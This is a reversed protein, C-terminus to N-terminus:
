SENGSTMKAKIGNIIEVAAKQINRRRARIDDGKAKWLALYNSTDKTEFGFHKLVIYASTEADIEKQQSSAYKGEPDKWHLLEHAVEHVYTSFMNIGKFKDNIAIKGGQSYGGRETGMEEYNVSINNEKAFEDLASILEQLESIDENSDLSWDKRSIPEFTKPHGAIAETASVDYVPRPLFFMRERTEVEGTEKNEIDKKSTAPALIIIKKSWDSVKRGFEQEWKKAGAVHQAQGRSQIWILLQNHFSYNYFKSSFDLFNRIFSQKAAEDTSNAVEEILKEISDILGQTKADSTIVKELTSHMKELTADVETTPQSQPQPQVPQSPAIQPTSDYGSFDVGIKQLENRIQPTLKNSFISYTGNGRFYRLGLTKLKEKMSFMLEREEPDAGYLVLFTNEPNKPSVEKRTRIYKQVQEFFLWTAFNMFSPQM